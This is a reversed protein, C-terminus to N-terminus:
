RQMARALGDVVVCLHRGSLAQRSGNLAKQRQRAGPVDAVCSSLCRRPLLLLLQQRLCAGAEGV